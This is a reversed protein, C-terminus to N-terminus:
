LLKTRNYKEGQQTDELMDQLDAFSPFTIGCQPAFKDLFSCIVAFNPDSACSYSAEKDTAM